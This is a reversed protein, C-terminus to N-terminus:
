IFVHLLIIFIKPKNQLKFDMLFLKKLPKDRHKKTNQGKM